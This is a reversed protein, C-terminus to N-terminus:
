TTSTLLPTSTSVLKLLAQRLPLSEAEGPLTANDSSKSRTRLSSAEKKATELDSESESESRTRPRTKADLTPRKRKDGTVDRGDRTEDQFVEPFGALSEPTGNAFIARVVRQVGSTKGEIDSLWQLLLSKSLLKMGPEESAIAKPLKEDAEQREEWDLNLVELLFEM